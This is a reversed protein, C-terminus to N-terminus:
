KTVTTTTPTYFGFTLSSVLGNIPMALNLYNEYRQM